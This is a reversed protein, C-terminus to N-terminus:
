SKRIESANKHAYLGEMEALKSAISAIKNAGKKTIIQYTQIKIFDKVSLGGTYRAAGGTPLIHNIGSCYDGFVEASFNGLFLSGYNRCKSSYKEPEKIQLELHEPAKKNAIDIANDITNVVIIKLNKLSKEAIEKTKLEALQKKIETNVADVLHKSTAILVLKASVDHEAQALLDAAVFEPKATEDAIILIESPGAIFDIGINGYLEKKALSIYINGPGVIKDVKPIQETGLAMAAIAQVGGIRFIKDAGAIDAAVITAPKIKPSCVIIEKVGAIKAPIVSMLASSPLPYNGGPVYCGVREIPIIKQGLTVGKKTYELNKYQKLQKKSFYKINAAATKLCQLATKDILKYSDAIEKESVLFDRIKAKDFILAYKAVAEDGYRRVDQIIRRIKKTKEM